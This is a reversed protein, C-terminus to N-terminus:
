FYSLISQQLQMGVLLIKWALGCEWLQKSGKTRTQIGLEVSIYFISIYFISYLFNLGALKLYLFQLHWLLWCHDAECSLQVLIKTSSFYLVFDLLCLEWWSKQLQGPPVSQSLKSERFMCLTVQSCLFSGSLSILFVLSHLRFVSVSVTNM